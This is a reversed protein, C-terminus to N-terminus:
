DCRNSQQCINATATGLWVSLKGYASTSRGGPDRAAARAVSQNYRFWSPDEDIFSIKQDNAAKARGLSQTYRSSRDLIRSQALTNGIATM